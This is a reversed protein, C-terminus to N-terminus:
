QTLTRVPMRARALDAHKAADPEAGHELAYIVPGFRRDMADIAQSTMVLSAPDSTSFCFGDVPVARRLRDMAEMRLTHADLGRDGLTAIERVVRGHDRSPVSAIRARGCAGPPVAVWMGPRRGLVGGIQPTRPCPPGAPKGAM